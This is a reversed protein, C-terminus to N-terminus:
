HHEKWHNHGRKHQMFGVVEAKQDPNLSDLFAGLAAMVDPAHQNILAIKSDFMALAKDQDFSDAGIVAKIDSHLPAMENRMTKGAQMILDKLAVLKESQGPELNLEETVYAIVHKARTDPDGWQHKGYAVAGGAIGFTFIVAIIIKKSRKM